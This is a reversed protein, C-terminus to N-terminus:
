MSFIDRDQRKLIHIIFCIFLNASFQIVRCIINLVCKEPGKKPPEFAFMILYSVVYVLSHIPVFGVSVGSFIIIHPNIQPRQSQLTM